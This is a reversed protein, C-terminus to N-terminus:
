NPVLGAPAWRGIANQEMRETPKNIFSTGQPSLLHHGGRRCRESLSHFFAFSPLEVALFLLYVTPIPVYQLLPSTKKLRSDTKQPSHEVAGAQIEPKQRRQHSTLVLDEAVHCDWQRDEVPAPPTDGSSARPKGQPM